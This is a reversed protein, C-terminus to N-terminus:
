PLEQPMKGTLLYIATLALSYLDGSYLTGATQESPMFGPTGIAILKTSNESVAM